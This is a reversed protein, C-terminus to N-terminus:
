IFVPLFKVIVSFATLSLFTGLNFFYCYKSKLMNFHMFNSPLINNEKLTLVAALTLSSTPSTLLPFIWGYCFPGAQLSSSPIGSPLTGWSQLIAWHNLLHIFITGYYFWLHLQVMQSRCCHPLLYPPARPVIKKETFCAFPSGKELFQLWNGHRASVFVVGVEYVSWGLKMRILCMESQVVEAVFLQRVMIYM